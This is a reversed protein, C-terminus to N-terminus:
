GQSVNPQFLAWLDKRCGQWLIKYFSPNTESEIRVIELTKWLQKISSKNLFFMGQVNVSESEDRLEFRRHFMWM